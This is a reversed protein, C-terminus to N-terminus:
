SQYCSMHGQIQMWEKRVLHLHELVHKMTPREDVDEKLSQVAIRGIMHLCDMVEPSTIDDDLMERAQSDTMYSKVFNIPLSNNGDYRAKKRTILELLVVGFSYVDSKETLIGTKMYVPDIYNIDGVVFNTHNKEISILRSIGFDSVKPKFDDDLLINSSKVDGHLIKQSASSHMYALAEASEIAIELRVQLTLNYKAVHNGNGHLVDHLSGKPIYASVLMPVNTELCCGVLRVVNKHNIQSQITVENAFDKKRAEDDVAISRKVAVQQNDNTTGKYVEGFGGKGLIISYNNTIKGVEEKTFIKIGINKLLQGGNKNFHDRLKRKEYEMRLFILVISSIAIACITAILATASKSLVPQCSNNNKRDKRRGFNCKCKYGGELNHCTGGPCPNEKYTSPDCENIDICGEPLYPNGHYGDSCNCLYGHGNNTVNVCYSHSSVCAGYPVVPNAMKGSEHPCSSGNSRIAWDLVLPIGKKDFYNANGVLDERKFSYWNKDAIFAYSCPSYDWASNTTDNHGDVGWTVNLFSLEPTLETQCCGLGSCPSGDPAAKQVDGGCYSICGTFYTMDEKGIIMALTNCGIATFKNGTTSILFPSGALDFSMTFQQSTNPSSYCIYPVATYSANLVGEELVIGTIEYDGRFPRPPNYSDNCVVTFDDGAPGLLSCNNGIGFPYPIAINGCTEPCDAPPHQMLQAEATHLLCLLLLCVGILMCRELEVVRKNTAM